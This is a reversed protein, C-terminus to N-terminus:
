RDTRDIADQDWYGLEVAGRLEIGTRQGEDGALRARQGAADESQTVFRDFQNLAVAAGNGHIRAAVIAPELVQRDNHGVDVLRIRGHQAGASRRDRGPRLKQRRPVRIGAADPGDIKAVPVSVGQFQDLIRRALALGAPLVLVPQKEADVM